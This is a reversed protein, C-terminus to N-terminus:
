KQDFCCPPLLSHAIFQVRRRRRQEVFITGKETGITRADRDNITRLGSWRQDVRATSENLSVQNGSGERAAIYLRYWRWWQQLLLRRGLFLSLLLLLLLNRVTSIDRRCLGTGQRTHLDREKKERRQQTSRSLIFILLLLLLLLLLLPSHSASISLLFVGEREREHTHTQPSPIGGGTRRRRTTITGWQARSEMEGGEGGGRRRWRHTPRDTTRRSIGACRLLSKKKREKGQLWSLSLSLRPPTRRRRRGGWTRRGEKKKGTRTHTHRGSKREGHTDKAASWRCPLFAAAMSHAEDTSSLWLKLVCKLLTEREKTVSSFCLANWVCM